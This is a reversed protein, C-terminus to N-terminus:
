HIITRRDLIFDMNIRKAISKVDKRPMAYTLLLELVEYDHFGKLGANVYIRQPLDYEIKRLSIRTKIHTSYKIQM